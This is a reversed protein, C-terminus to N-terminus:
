RQERYMKEMWGFRPDYGSQYVHQPFHWTAQGELQNVNAMTIQGTKYLPGMIQGVWLDEAWINPESNVIFLSAKKTLSYGFGGSAWPYCHPLFWRNGDRDPAHYPFTVGLERGNVGFYDFKQFDTKMLKSPIVYTDTDCLFTRDYGQTVSWRLIERTKYPLSHYDDACNLGVEDARQEGDPIRGGVFFRLDGDKIDRGWTDRIVQHDGRMRDAQCSKVAFLLSM